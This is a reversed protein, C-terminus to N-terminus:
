VRSICGSVEEVAVEDGLRVFTTEVYRLGFRRSEFSDAYPQDQRVQCGSTGYRREVVTRLTGPWKDKRGRLAAPPRWPPEKLVEELPLARMSNEFVFPESPVFAKRGLYLQWAPQEFASRGQILIMEAEPGGELGVLFSADALYFRDSLVANKDASGDAKVCGRATQYDREVRGERDVRVGLRLRLFRDDLRQTRPIGLAACLLGIVGSKSPERGTDRHTFRSQTGWAQMPGALRILLTNRRDV